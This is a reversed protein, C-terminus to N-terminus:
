RIRNGRGRRSSRGAFFVPPRQRGNWQIAIQSDSIRLKARGGGSQGRRSRFLGAGSRGGANRRHRPWARVARSRQHACGGLPRQARQHGAGAHRVAAFSAGRHAGAPSAREGSATRGGSYAYVSAVGSQASAAVPIGIVALAFASAIFTKKLSYGAMDMRNSQQHSPHDARRYCAPSRIVPSIHENHTADHSFYSQDHCHIRHPM